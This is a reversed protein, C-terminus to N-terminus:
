NNLPELNIELPEYQVMVMQIQRSTGNHEELVALMNTIKVVAYIIIKKKIKPYDSNLISGTNLSNSRMMNALDLTSFNSM